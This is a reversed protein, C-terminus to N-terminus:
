VTAHFQSPRRNADPDTSLVARIHVGCLPTHIAITRSSTSEHKLLIQWKDSQRANNPRAEHVYQYHQDARIPDLVHPGNLL